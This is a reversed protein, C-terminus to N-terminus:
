LTKESADTGASKANPLSSEKTWGCAPCKWEDGELETEEQCKACTPSSQVNGDVWVANISGAAGRNSYWMGSVASKFLVRVASGATPALREEVKIDSNARLWEMHDKAREAQRLQEDSM